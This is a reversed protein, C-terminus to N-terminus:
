RDTHVEGKQGHADDNTSAPSNREVGRVGQLKAAGEKQRHGRVADM